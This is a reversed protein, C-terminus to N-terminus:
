RRPAELQIRPVTQWDVRGAGSELGIPICARLERAYAYLLATDLGSCRPPARDLLRIASDLNQRPGTVLGLRLQNLANSLLVLARLCESREYHWQLEFALLAERFKGANFYAVARDIPDSM